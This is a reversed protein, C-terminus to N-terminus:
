RVEKILLFKFNLSNFITLLIESTNVISASIEIFEYHTTTKEIKWRSLHIRRIDRLVLFKGVSLDKVSIDHIYVGHIDKVKM